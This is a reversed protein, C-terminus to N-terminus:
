YSSSHARFLETIKPCTEKGTDGQLEKQLAATMKTFTVAPAFSRFGRSFAETGADCRSQLTM